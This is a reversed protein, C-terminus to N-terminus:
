RATAKITLGQNPKHDFLFLVAVRDLAGLLVPSSFSACRASCETDIGSHPLLSFEDLVTASLLTNAEGGFDLDFDFSTFVDVPDVNASEVWFVVGSDGQMPLRTVAVPTNRTFVIGPAIDVEPSWAPSTSLVVSLRVNASSVVGGTHVEINTVDGPQLQAIPVRIEGVPGTSTYDNKGVKIKTIRPPAGSDGPICGLHITLDTAVMGTDNAVFGTAAPAVGVPLATSPLDLNAAGGSVHITGLITTQGVLVATSLAFLLVLRM